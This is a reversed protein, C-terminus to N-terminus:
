WVVLIIAWTCPKRRPEPPEAMDAGYGLWGDGATIRAVVEEVSLCTDM